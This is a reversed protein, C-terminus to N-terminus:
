VKVLIWDQNADNATEKLEYVIVQTGSEKSAGKIDLVMNKHLNIIHVGDFAWEQRKDDSNKDIIVDNVAHIGGHFMDSLGAIDLVLASQKNRIVGGKEFTWQQNLGKHLQWTIVPTGATMNAGKGDLVLSPNLKSQIFFTGTPWEQLKYQKQSKPHTWYRIPAVVNDFVENVDQKVEEKERELPKAAELPAFFTDIANTLSTQVFTIFQQMIENLTNTVKVIGVCVQDITTATGDLLSLTLGLFTKNQNEGPLLGFKDAVDKIRSVYQQVQAASVSARLKALAVEISNVAAPKAIVLMWPMSVNFIEEVEKASSDLFSTIQKLETIVIDVVAVAVEQIAARVLRLFEAVPKLISDVFMTTFVDVFAQQLAKFENLFENVNAKVHEKADAGYQNWLRRAEDIDCLEQAKKLLQQIRTGIVQKPYEVFKALLEAIVSKVNLGQPFHKMAFAHLPEWVKVFKSQVLQVFKDQQQKLKGIFQQWEQKAKAELAKVISDVLCSVMPVMVSYALNAGSFLAFTTSFESIAETAQVISTPVLQQILDVVKEDAFQVSSTLANLDQLKSAVDNVIQVFEQLSQM